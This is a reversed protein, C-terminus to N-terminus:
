WAQDRWVVGSCEVASRGVPTSTGMVKSRGVMVSLGVMGTQGVAIIWGMMVIRVGGGSEAGASREARVFPSRGMLWRSRDGGRANESWRM